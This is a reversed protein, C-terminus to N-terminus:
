PAMICVNSGGAGAPVGLKGVRSEAKLEIRERKVGIVRPSLPAGECRMGRRYGEKSGGGKRGSGAMGEPRQTM